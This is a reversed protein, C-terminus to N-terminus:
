TASSSTALSSAVFLPGNATGLGTVTAGSKGFEEWTTGTFLDLWYNM